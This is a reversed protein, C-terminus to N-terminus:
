DQLRLKNVAFDACRFQRHFLKLVFKAQIRAGAEHLATSLAAVVGSKGRSGLLSFIRQRLNWSNGPIEVFQIGKRALERFGRLVGETERERKERRERNTREREFLSM